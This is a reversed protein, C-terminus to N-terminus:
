DKICRVSLGSFKEFFPTVDGQALGNQLHLYYAFNTMTPNPNVTSAWYCGLILRHQFGSTHRVGFANGTFGSENTSGTNPSGWYITGTNKLKNGAVASGGLFNVLTLMETSTPIHFGPPCINRTDTAAFWNYLRGETNGYTTNNEYDCFAATTSSNWQTNNTIMPIPEGNRFKTTKLNELLWTQTGIKVETYINGDADKIATDPVTDKKCASFLIVFALAFLSLQKKM